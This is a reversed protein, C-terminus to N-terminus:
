RRAPVSPAGRGSAGSRDFALTAGAAGGIILTQLGLIANLWAHYNPSQEAHYAFALIHCAEELGFLAVVWFAIWSRARVGMAIVMSAIVGDGLGDILEGNKWGFGRIVVNYLAWSALLWLATNRLLRHGSWHALELSVVVMSGYLITWGM